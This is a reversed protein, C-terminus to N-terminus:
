GLVVEAAVATAYLHAIDAVDTALEQNLVNDEQLLVYLLRTEPVFM